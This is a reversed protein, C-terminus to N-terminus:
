GQDATPRALLAGIRRLGALDHVDGALATVPVQPVGPHSKSFRQRQRGERAATGSREVRVTLLDATRREDDSGKRLRRIAAAAETPDLDGPVDDHVRNVVLGALPMGDGALREVFYSAERM